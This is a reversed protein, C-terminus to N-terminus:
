DLALWIRGESNSAQFHKLRVSKPFLSVFLIARWRNVKEAKCLFSSSSSSCVLPRILATQGVNKIIQRLLLTFAVRQQSAFNGKCICPPPQLMAGPPKDAGDRGVGKLIARAGWAIAWWGSGESVESHLRPAQDSVDPCHCRPSLHPFQWSQRESLSTLPM